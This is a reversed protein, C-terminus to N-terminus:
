CRSAATAIGHGPLTAHALRQGHLRLDVGINRLSRAKPERELARAYHEPRESAEGIQETM